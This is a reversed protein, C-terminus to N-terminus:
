WGVIANTAGTGEGDGIEASGVIAYESDLEAPSVSFSVAVQDPRWRDTVGEIFHERVVASPDGIPVISTSIRHSIEHGLVTQWATAVNSALSPIPAVTPIRERVESFKNAYMGAMGAADADLDHLTSMEKTRKFHRDSAATNEATQVNGSPPTISAATFLRDEDLLPDPPRIPIQSGGGDGYVQRVSAENLVRYHRDQFTVTGDGAEFLVGGDTEAVQLAHELRNAQDLDNGAIVSQGTGVTSTVGAVALVEALRDGSMEAPRITTELYKDLALAKFVGSCQVAVRPAKGGDGYLLKWSDVFGRHRAFTRSSGHQCRVRVSNTLTVNPYYPGSAFTPDFQRASNTLKFSCRGTESRELMFNRGRSADLETVYATVDSWRQYTDRADSEFAIEVKLRPVRSSAPTGLLQQGFTGASMAQYHTTVMDGTFAYPYVAVEDLKGDLWETSDSKRALHLSTATDACTRDTVTGSRDTGNVYIKASASGNKAAVVHYVTSTALTIGTTALIVGTGQKLLELTTGNRRLQYGDTGKSILTATGAVTDFQVVLELTFTDGLDLDPDDAATYAQTSGNFDRAGTSGGTEGAPLLTANNAPAAVATLTNGNGSDDVLPDATDLGWFAAPDDDLVVSEWLTLTSISM